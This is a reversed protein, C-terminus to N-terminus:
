SYIPLVGGSGAPCYRAVVSIHLPCCREQATEIWLSGKQFGPSLAENCPQNEKREQSLSWALLCFRSQATGTASLELPCLWREGPTAILSACPWSPGGLQTDTTRSTCPGLTLCGM